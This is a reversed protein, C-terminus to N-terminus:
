NEYIKNELCIWYLTNLHGKLKLYHRKKGAGIIYLTDCLVLATIEVGSPSIFDTGLDNGYKSYFLPFPMIPASLYLFTWITGSQVRDM